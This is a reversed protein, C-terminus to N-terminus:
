PEDDLVLGTVTSGLGFTMAFIGVYLAVALTPSSDNLLLQLIPPHSSFLLVLALAAGLGVGIAL